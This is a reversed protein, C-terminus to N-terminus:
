PERRPVRQLIEKVDGELRLQGGELRGQGEKLWQIDEIYREEEVYQPHYQHQKDLWISVLVNAVFFTVMATGIKWTKDM